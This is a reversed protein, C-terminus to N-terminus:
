FNCSIFNSGLNLIRSDACTGLVSAHPHCTVALLDSGVLSFRQEAGWLYYKCKVYIYIYVRSM